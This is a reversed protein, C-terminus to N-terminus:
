PQQSSVRKGPVRFKTHAVLAIDELEDVVTAFIALPMLLFKGWTYCLTDHIHILLERVEDLLSTRLLVDGDDALLLLM